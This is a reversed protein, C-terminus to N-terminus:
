STFFRAVFETSSIITCNGMTKSTPATDNTYIDGETVYELTTSGCRFNDDGTLPDTWDTLGIASIFTSVPFSVYVYWLSNSAFFVSPVDEEFQFQPWDTVPDTTEIDDVYYGAFEQCGSCDADPYTLHAVKSMLQNLTDVNFLAMVVLKIAIAVSGTVPVAALCTDVFDALLGTMVDIAQSNYLICVLDSRREEIEDAVQSFVTIEVALFGLAATAVPILAPPFVIASTVALVLLGALAIANFVGFAAINRCTQIVGDAVLNAVQCKDLLYEEMTDYGEPIEEPELIIPPVSGMLPVSNEGIPQTTQGQLGGNQDMVFSECCVSNGSAQLRLATAISGLATAIGSDGCAMIVEKLHLNTDFTERIVDQAETITGTHEDWFRGSAPLTLVGRAVALWKPSNPWCFAYRCYEGQWDDPIVGQGM